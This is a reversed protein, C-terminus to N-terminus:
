DSFLALIIIFHVEQAGEGQYVAVTVDSKQGEIKATYVRRVRPRHRHYDAVMNDLRIERLLDIDGV